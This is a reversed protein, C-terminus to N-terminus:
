YGACGACVKPAPLAAAGAWSGAETTPCPSRFPLFLSAPVPAPDCVPDHKEM